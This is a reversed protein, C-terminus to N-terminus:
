DFSIAALAHDILGADVHMFVAFIGLVGALIAVDVTVGRLLHWDFM